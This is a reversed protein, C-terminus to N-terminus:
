KLVVKRSVKGLNSDVSLLYIGENVATADVAIEQGNGSTSLVASGQLNYLTVNLNSAGAQFVNFQKSGTHEIMLNKEFDNVLTEGIADPNVLKKLAAAANIKGHGFRKFDTATQADKSSTTEILNMVDKVTLYPNAELWLAVVGAAFPTAMSTGQMPYYASTHSHSTSLANVGDEKMKQGEYWYQSISSVIQAGPACVDPLQRGDALTGYSSFASIAGIPGAGTYSGNGIFPAATRTTYSGVSIFNHGCGFGNISGEPTGGIYGEVNQDSFVIEQAAHWGANVYAFCKKDKEGTINIGFHTFSAGNKFQLNNNLVVYFRNTEPDIGCAVSVSSTSTYVDGLESWDSPKYSIAKGDTNTVTRSSVIKKDLKNYLVLECKFPTADGSWFEATYSIAASENKSPVMFTNLTLGGKRSFNKQIAMNNQGENGAAILIIADKGLADLAKSMSSNPDHSGSNSGLSLNVVAPQGLEKAHNVVKAVGALIAADYFEGCGLVLDSNYAVGYYPIDGEERISTVGNAQAYKGHVNRSGAMIGAVHTGHSEGKDDTTYDAIAEPTLYEDVKAIGTSKNVTAEFLAKVRTSGDANRFAAHNPDVGMDYMGCVVGKGTFSHEVGKNDAIAIHSEDVGSAARAVDMMPAAKQGFSIAKVQPMAEIEDLRTLPINAISVDGATFIVEIGKEKLLSADEGDNLTVLAAVSGPLDANSKAQATQQQELLMLQAHPSLKSQASASLCCGAALLGCFIIKKM